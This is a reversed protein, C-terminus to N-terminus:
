LQIGAKITKNKKKKKQGITAGIRNYNLKVEKKTKKKKKKKTKIWFRCSCIVLTKTELFFCIGVNEM